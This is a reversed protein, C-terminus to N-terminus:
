QAPLSDSCSRPILFRLITSGAIGSAAKSASAWPCDNNPIDSAKRQMGVTTLPFLSCQASVGKSSFAVQELDQETNFLSWALELM